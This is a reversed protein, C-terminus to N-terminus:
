RLSWLFGALDRLVGGLSRVQRVQKLIKGFKERKPVGDVTFFEAVADNLLRPYLDVFQRHHAVYHTAKSFQKLDKVVFSDWLRDRYARLAKDSVDGVSLAEAAVEGALRGSTIALNTGEWFLANVLMAADGVIMLGPAYIQLEKLTKYGGEPILHASYERPEAGELLPAVVPHAKMRDLLEYPTIGGAAKLDSLLVGVGVSLTDKNTYIFGVGTMGETIGILEIAVGSKGNPLGFRENIVKGPLALVEKVGLAMEEARWERKYIGARKPLLANAGEAVIVIDAYLEGQPRDTRVGIFRGNREILEVAPTEYLVIAGAAEVQRAYWDDFRARLATFANYPPEAHHASRYGFKVASDQSCLWYQHEIVVRELPAQEWFNPILEHLPRTYLVGGFMNKSGAKEGRELVVVRVGKRALVLAATLGAPGAGVVIVDFKTEVQAM